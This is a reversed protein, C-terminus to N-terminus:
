SRDAGSSTLRAALDNAREPSVPEVLAAGVVSRAIVAEFGYLGAVFAAALILWGLSAVAAAFPAHRTSAWLTLPVGALFLAAIQAQWVRRVFRHPGREFSLAAHYAIGGAVELPLSLWGWGLSHGFLVGLASSALAIGAALVALAVNLWLWGTSRDEHKDLDRARLLWSQVPFPLLASLRAGERLLRILTARRQVILLERRAIAAVEGEYRRAVRPHSMAEPSTALDVHVQALSYACRALCAM